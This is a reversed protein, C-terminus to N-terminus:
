QARPNITYNWEGHFEDRNINLTAMEANRIKIGKPYTNPDIGARVKLGTKTTTAGILSVIVQHSILPKGRWNKTIFSFLRHEIKNWKSTGPPFHCVSIPKKIEDALKQLEVKWLRLRSGNSGGGDATILVAVADAFRPLGMEYWWRRISAVAFAGTDHNIGVNVWAENNALDYVGYPSVRGQKPNVFDHVQVEEPNGKPRLEQGGNKFDGVLEKKKTDVSLAPNGAAVAEEVRKNIHEFQANRDPHRSSGEKTKKNAQLSYNMSRLLTAVTTASVKHGQRVLEDSLNEVSKATWRLASEPDGRTMPEILRELDSLLTPDKDTLKKRGGGARRSRNLPLSPAGSKELARVEAKGAGITSPAIGTARAVTAIGGWGIALAETAAFLRRARENLSGKMQEFRQKISEVSEM